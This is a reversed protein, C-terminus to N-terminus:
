GLTSYSEKTSYSRVVPINYTCILIAQMIVQIISFIDTKCTTYLVANCRGSPLAAEVYCNNVRNVQKSMPM